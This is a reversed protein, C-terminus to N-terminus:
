AYDLSSNGKFSLRDIRFESRRYEAVAPHSVVQSAEEPEGVVTETGTLAVHAM